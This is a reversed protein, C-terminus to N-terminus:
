LRKWKGKKNRKLQIVLTQSENKWKGNKSKGLQAVIKFSIKNGYKNLSRGTIRIHSTKKSKRGSIYKDFYRNIEKTGGKVLRVKLNSGKILQYHFSFDYGHEGRYIYNKVKIKVKPKPIKIKVKVPYPKEVGRVWVNVSINKQIKVSYNKRTTIKGTKGNIRFYKRHKKAKPLTMKEFASPDSIIKDITLSKGLTVTVTKEVMVPQRTPEPTPDVVAPSTPTLMPPETPQESPMKTPIPTPSGTPSGSPSVSPTGTPPSSPSGTPSGSPSGVPDSTPPISASVVPSETPSQSSTQISVKMEGILYYFYKDLEQVRYYLYVETQEKSSLSGDFNLQYTTQNSPESNKIFSVTVDSSIAAHSTAVEAGNFLVSESVLFDEKAEISISANTSVKAFGSVEGVQDVMFEYNGLEFAKKSEEATASLTLGSGYLLGLLMALSLVFAIARKQKMM